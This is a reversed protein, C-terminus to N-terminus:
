DSRSLKLTDAVKELDNYLSNIEQSANDPYCPNFEDQRGKSMIVFVQKRRLTNAYFRLTVAYVCKPGGNFGRYMRINNKNIYVDNALPTKPIRTSIYSEPLVFSAFEYSYFIPFDYGGSTSNLNNEDVLRKDLDPLKVAKNLTFITLHIPFEQDKNITYQIEEIENRKYTYLTHDSLLGELLPSYIGVDNYNYIKSDQKTPIAQDDLCMSISSKLKDVESNLAKITSKDTEELIRKPYYISKGLGLGLCFSILISILLIHSRFKLDRFRSVASLISM